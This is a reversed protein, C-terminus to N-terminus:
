EAGGDTMRVRTAALCPPHAPALVRSAVSQVRISKERGRKREEEGCAGGEAPAVEDALVLLNAPFHALGHVAHALRGGEDEAGFDGLEFGGEGGEGTGSETDRHAAPRRGKLHEVAGEADAVAVFDDGDGECPHGRRLCDAETSRLWTRPLLLGL